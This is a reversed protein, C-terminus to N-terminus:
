DSDIVMKKRNSNKPRTKKIKNPNPIIEFEEEM